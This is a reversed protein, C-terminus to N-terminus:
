KDCKGRMNVSTEVFIKLESAKIGNELIYSAICQAKYVGCKKARYTKRINNPTSSFWKAITTPNSLDEYTM